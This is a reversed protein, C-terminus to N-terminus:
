ESDVWVSEDGQDDEDDIGESIYDTNEDKLAEKLSEVWDEYEEKADYEDVASGLPRRGSGNSQNEKAVLARELVGVKGGEFGEAEGDWVAHEDSVLGNRWCFAMWERWWQDKGLLGPHGIVFLAEKARTLAMNMKRKQHVIGIDRKEDAQLFRERTRTTCLIVVRKELGQFAELPGINIDWLGSGGGYGSGRILSRLWKVQAAFPSMICIDAQKVSSEYVLQEAINCARQAESVNYWGGGDREIEDAGTHPLFLVPWRRGHWLPSTQLATSPIAAEPILTNNYFLASPVSLIAPHSRYNRILNTFPPYPIPLMSKKLVPPNSSPKTNSRSLPHTAYLSRAFLRAFLSISFQPNHSATRPGLQNEDGAMIFRPHQLHDPYGTPPRVVSIAPMIDIETAQAAEDILLAGWHLSPMPVPKEPHLASQMNREIAWLDINTLRAETLISADRCSTVVVNFAMLTKFPPLYFMDNEMHCYQMLDRPVENDARGPRNLRFLQKHNLYLKLRLAITDAAAESPACILLHAINTSQLLQMASEVLTKTKGTGPPGSILYPLTGYDNECIDNVAHAQEFNLVHDFLERSPVKRLRRQLTSDAETPFLMRRIWNNPPTGLKEEDEATSGDSRHQLTSAERLASDIGALARQQHEALGAKLPITVNVIMPAVISIDLMLYELGELHLFVTEQARNVSYVSGDYRIGTWYHHHMQQGGPHVGITYHNQVLTPTLTGASDVYLQRIQITDGMELFPTDERLGPVSLAWVNGEATPTYYLPVQYLANADYELKKARYEIDMLKQFHQLYTRETLLPDNTITRKLAAEFAKRPRDPVFSTGAFTNTYGQYDISHWTPTTIVHAEETNINKLVLPVFPSAYVDYEWTVLDPLDQVTPVAETNFVNVLSLHGSSVANRETITTPVSQVAPNSFTASQSGFSSRIQLPAKSRSIIDPVVVLKSADRRTPHSTGSM